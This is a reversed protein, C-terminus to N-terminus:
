QHLLDGETKKELFAGEMSRIYRTIEQNQLAQKVVDGTGHVSPSLKANADEFAFCSWAWIPSKLHSSLLKKNDAIMFCKVAQKLEQQQSLYGIYRLGQCNETSCRYQTKNEPSIRECKM